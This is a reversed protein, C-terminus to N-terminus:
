TSPVVHSRWGDERLLSARRTAGTRAWNQCASLTRGPRCPTLPLSSYRGTKQSLLAAPGGRDFDAGLTELEPRGSIHSVMTSRQCGGLAGSAKRAFEAVSCRAVSRKASAKTDGAVSACNEN